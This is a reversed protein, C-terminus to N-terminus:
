SPKAMKARSMSMAILEGTHFIVWVGHFFDGDLGVRSAASHDRATLREGDFPEDGGRGDAPPAGPPCTSNLVWWLPNAIGCICIVHEIVELKETTGFVLLHQGILLPHELVGAIRGLHLPDTLPGLSGLVLFLVEGAFGQRTFGAM